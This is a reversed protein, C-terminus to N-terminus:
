FIIFINYMESFADTGVAYIKEEIPVSGSVEKVGTQGEDQIKVDM